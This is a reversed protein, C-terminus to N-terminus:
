YEKFLQLIVKPDEKVVKAAPRTTATTTKTVGVKSATTTGLKKDDVKTVKSAVKTVPEQNPDVDNVKEESPGENDTITTDAETLEDNDFEM